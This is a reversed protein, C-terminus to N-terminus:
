CMSNCGNMRYPLLAPFPSASFCCFPVRARTGQVSTVPSGELTEGCLTVLTGAASSPWPAWGRALSTGQPPSPTVQTGM